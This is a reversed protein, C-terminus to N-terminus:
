AEDEAIARLVARGVQALSGASCKDPTDALTHWHPYEFDIVDICPIGRSLLVVHDDLV